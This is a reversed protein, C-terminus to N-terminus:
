FTDSICLSWNPAAQIYDRYNDHASYGHTSGVSLQGTVNSQNLTSIPRGLKHGYGGIATGHLRMIECHVCRHVQVSAGDKREVLSVRMSARVWAVGGSPAAVRRRPRLSQVARGPRM